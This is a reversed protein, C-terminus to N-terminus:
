GLSMDGPTRLFSVLHIFALPFAVNNVYEITCLAGCGPNTSSTGKTVAITSSSSPGKIGVFMMISSGVGSFNFIPIGNITSNSCM